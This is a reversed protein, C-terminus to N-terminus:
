NDRARSSNKETEIVGVASFDTGTNTACVQTCSELEHNQLKSELWNSTSLVFIAFLVGAIVDVGYHYRMYVTAFILGMGLPVIIMASKARYKIAMAITIITMETHGSPFCDRQALMAAKAVNTISEGSNIVARLFSTIYLGPLDNNLRAFNYLTFRPGIAPVLFYGAYSTYFGYMLVFLFFLFGKENKNRLLDIGLIIWLLYFSSYCIQLFETLGRTSIKDLLSIPDTGFIFKDVRILLYDFDNPNIAHVMVYLEKFTMFILPFTYWQTIFDMIRSKSRSHFNMLVILGFSALFNAILIILCYQVKNYFILSTVAIATLGLINLRDLPRTKKLDLM